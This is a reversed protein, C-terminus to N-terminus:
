NGALWIIQDPNKIPIWMNLSLSSGSWNAEESALQDPDVSNALVPYTTNLLLLTLTPLSPWLWITKICGPFLTHTHQSPQPPTTQCTHLSHFPHTSSTLLCIVAREFLIGARGLGTLGVWGIIFKSICWNQNTFIHKTKKIYINFTETM